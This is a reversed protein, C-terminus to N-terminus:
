LYDLVRRIIRAVSTGPSVREAPLALVMPGTAMMVSLVAHMGASSAARWPTRTM